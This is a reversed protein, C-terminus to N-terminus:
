RREGDGHLAKEDDKLANGYGKLVGDGKQVGKWRGLM